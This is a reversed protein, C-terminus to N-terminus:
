NSDYIYIGYTSVAHNFDGVKDMFLFLILSDSIYNIIEFTGSTQWIKLNIGFIISVTTICM